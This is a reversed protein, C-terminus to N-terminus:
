GKSQKVSTVAQVGYDFDDGEDLKTMLYRCTDDNCCYHVVVLLKSRPNRKAFAHQLKCVRDPKHATRASLLCSCWVLQM